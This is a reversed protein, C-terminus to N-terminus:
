FNGDEDFELALRKLDAQSINEGLLSKFLSELEKLTSKGDGNKDIVTFAERLELLLLLLIAIVFFFEISFILLVRM